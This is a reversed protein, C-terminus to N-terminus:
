IPRRPRLSKGLFVTVFSLAVCGLSSPEPVYNASDTSLQEVFAFTGPVLRNVAFSLHNPVPGSLIADVSFPGILSPADILSVVSFTGAAGPPNNVQYTVVSIDIGDGVPNFISVFQLPSFRIEVEQFAELEFGTFTYTFRHVPEGGPTTVGVVGVSYEIAAARAPSPGFLLLTSLVLGYRLKM